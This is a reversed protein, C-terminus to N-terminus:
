VCRSTYLLCDNFLTMTLMCNNTCKGCNRMTNEYTLAEIEDLTLLTTGKGDDKEMAIKAMGYAGM